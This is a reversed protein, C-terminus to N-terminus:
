FQVIMEPVHRRLGELLRAFREPDSVPNEQEDRVHAHVIRAGAEFAEHASEVQEAIIVPLAPNHAKRPASGTIAVCIV